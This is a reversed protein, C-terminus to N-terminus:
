ERESAKFIGIESLYVNRASKRSELITLRIKDTIIADFRMLRKHGITTSEQLKQWNAGDWYEILFRSIYQGKLINEQLLIRNFDQKKGLNIAFPKNLSLPTHTALKGDNLLPSVSNKILNNKFTENLISRMERLNAIDNEHILGRTTPPINLLLLSNRGVSKYYLNVLDKGSRVKDDEKPHYFWGQRISVDTEAPIWSTGEPDGTNLYKEDAKGPAKAKDGISMMAWCTEGANGSENGVWRVDPGVDSFMVATPQLARVIQWYGKFDYEMDKANQGKAGDFWVESITGYQTLLERLQAKYYDNYKPTGYTAEHMDWPSLYVGFKLGAEHCANAIDRVIDGKGGQFPSNKVSHETMKTQWLCFGDHHKATLVVLKFGTEKLVSVIKRADFDVPNFISPSEQGTGWERDTFTNVGFHLFASLERQQWNIQRKTPKVIPQAYLSQFLLINILLFKFISKIV